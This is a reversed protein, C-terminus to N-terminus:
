GLIKLKVNPNLSKIKEIITIGFDSKLESESKTIQIEGKFVLPTAKNMVELWTSM